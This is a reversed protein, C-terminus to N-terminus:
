GNLSSKKRHADIIEWHKANVTREIVRQKDVWDNIYKPKEWFPPSGIVRGKVMKIEARLQDITFKFIPYYSTPINMRQLSQADDKSYLKVKTDGIQMSDGRQAPRTVDIISGNSLEIWAHEVLRKFDNKSSDECYLGEVYVADADIDMIIHILNSGSNYYCDMIRCKFKKSLNISLEIDVKTKAIKIAPKKSQKKQNFKM